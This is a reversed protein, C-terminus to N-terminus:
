DSTSAAASACGGADDPPLPSTGAGSTRCLAEARALDEPTNVNLLPDFPQDDFDAVALGIAQMVRGLRREGSALAHRVGDAHGARWLGVAPHLRGGSRACALEAGGSVRADRLRALLDSPLFPTDAPVVLLDAGPEHDALWELGALIGALPGPLGAVTDALLPVGFPLYGDRDANVSLVTADQAHDLRFLVHALLSRGCLERLPKAGGGLRTGRGGALVLLVSRSM